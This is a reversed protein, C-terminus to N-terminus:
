LSKKGSCKPTLVSLINVNHCSIQSRFYMVVKVTKDGSTPLQNIMLTQILFNNQEPKLSQCQTTDRNMLFEWESNDYLLTISERTIFGDEHPRSCLYKFNNGCSRDAWVFNGGSKILRVCNVADSGDPDNPHWPYM